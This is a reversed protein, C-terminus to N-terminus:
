RITYNSGFRRMFRRGDCTTPSPDFPRIPTTVQLTTQPRGKREKYRAHDASAGSYLCRDALTHQLNKGFIVDGGRTNISNGALLVGGGSQVVNHFFNEQRSTSGDMM